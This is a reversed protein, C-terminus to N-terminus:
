TNLFSQVLESADETLNDGAIWIITKDRKLWTMQRKAFQRTKTELEELMAEKEMHGSLYRSIYRYELGLEEMREAPVGDKLLSEVEEIMGDNLRGYLRDHINQHLGEKTVEIGTTLVDYLEEPEQKPVKGLTEVIELARILRRKNQPDLELAREEDLSSLTTYLSETGMMELKARLEPNPPVEPTLIRGLLADIYFFTGGVIVPLKGRSVIDAIAARGDRVYDSVTYTGKPDAVDLLHHPIGGMEEKTVKGSGIDLGAYVQRSDASIVEGNFQKAIKIGLKTKGSATPGVVVIVKPKKKRDDPM